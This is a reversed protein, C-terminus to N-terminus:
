HRKEPQSRQLKQQEQTHKQSLQQTQQQHRQEVKQREPEPARRQELRQHEQEQKQQLRQREQEQRSRLKEQDQQFKPSVNGNGSRPANREIPPLERPHIADRSQPSSASRGGSPNSPRINPEASRDAPASSRATPERYSPGASRAQVVSGNFEAPKATAAIAPRGHNTSEFLQRNTSARQVHERQVPLPALHRERAASEEEATPRATIGGSGGNYSINRVTENVIVTKNYVNTVNTVNNVSRDYLPENRTMRFESPVLRLLSDCGLVFSSSVV